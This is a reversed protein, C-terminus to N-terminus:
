LTNDAHAYIDIFLKLKVTSGSLTQTTSKNVIINIAGDTITTDGPIAGGDSIETAVYINWADHIRSITNTAAVQASTAPSVFFYGDAAGGNLQAMVDLTKVMDYSWDATVFLAKISIFYVASRNSGTLPFSGGPMGLAEKDIVLVTDNTNISDLVGLDFEKIIKQVKTLSAM